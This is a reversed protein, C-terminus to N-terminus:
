YGFFYGITDGEKVRRYYDTNYREHLRSAANQNSIEAYYIDIINFVDFRDFGKKTTAGIDAINWWFILKKDNKTLHKENKTMKKVSKCVRLIDNISINTLLEKEAKRVSTTYYEIIRDERKM